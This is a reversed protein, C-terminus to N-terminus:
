MTRRRIVWGEAGRSPREGSSWSWAAPTTVHEMSFPSFTGGGERHCTLCRAYVIRAIERSWTLKTTVREHGSAPLATALVAVLIVKLRM